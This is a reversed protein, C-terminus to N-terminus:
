IELSLTHGAFNSSANPGRTRVAFGWINVVNALALGSTGETNDLEIAGLHEIIGGSGGDEGKTYGTITAM